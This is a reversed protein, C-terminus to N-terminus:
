PRGHLTARAWVPRHDSTGRQDLVTGSAGSDPVSFGRVLIHDWRGGRTTRPGRETLWVYGEDVLVRAARSDNFDGGVIVQPHGAADDAIARLQARRASGWADLITSLHTSYVRVDTAGIRITARTAARHTGAYRSRHPLILKADDVIPWRSLVANGIDQRHRLHHITPYYVYYMRLSDAVQRTSAATMEQLLLVDAGRLEPTERLLRIADDTRRALEVNFSVIRVTDDAPPVVGAGPGGAYRPERPDAYSRGTRCGAVLALLLLAGRIPTRSEM